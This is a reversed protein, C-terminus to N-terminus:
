LQFAFVRHREHLVCDSKFCYIELSLELHESVFLNVYNNAGRNRHKFLLCTDFYERKPSPVVMLTLKNSFLKGRLNKMVAPEEPTFESCYIGSVVSVLKIYADRLRSLLVGKDCNAGLSHFNAEVYSLLRNKVVSNLCDELRVLSEEGSLEKCKRVLKEAIKSHTRVLNEYRADFLLSSEPLTELNLTAFPSSDSQSFFPKIVMGNQLDFNDPYCDAHVLGATKKHLPDIMLRKVIEVNKLQSMKAVVPLPRLVEAYPSDINNGKNPKGSLPLRCQNRYIHEDLLKNQKTLRSTINAVCPDENVLVEILPLYCRFAEINEFFVNPPLEVLVRLSKTLMKKNLSRIKNKVPETLRTKGDSWFEDLDIKYSNQLAMEERLRTEIKPPLGPMGTGGEISNFADVIRKTEQFKECSDGEYMNSYYLYVFVQDAYPDTDILELLQSYNVKVEERRSLLRCLVLVTVVARHFASALRVTEIYRINNYGDSLDLDIDFMLNSLSLMKSFKLHFTAGTERAYVSWVDDSSCTKLGGSSLNTTHLVIDRAEMYLLSAVDEPRILGCSHNAFAYGQEKASTLMKDSLMIGTQKNEHLLREELTQMVSTKTWVYRNMQCETFVKGGSAGASEKMILPKYSMYEQGTAKNTVQKGKDYRVLASYTDEIPKPEDVKGCYDNEWEEMCDIFGSVKSDTAARTKAKARQSPNKEVKDYVENALNVLLPDYRLSKAHLIGGPTRDTIIGMTKFHSLINFSETVENVRLGIEKTVAKYIDEGSQYVPAWEFDPSILKSIEGRGIQVLEGFRQYFPILDNKVVNGAYLMKTILPNLGYGVWRMDSIRKRFEDQKYVTLRWAWYTCWKVFCVFLWFDCHAEESFNQQSIVERSFGQLGLDSTDTHKPFCNGPSASLAYVYNRYDRLSLKMDSISKTDGLNVNKSFAFFRLLIIGDQTPMVRLTEMLKEPREKTRDHLRDTKKIFQNFLLTYKVSEDFTSSIKEQLSPSMFLKGTTKAHMEVTAYRDIYPTFSDYKIYGQEGFLLRTPLDRTIFLPIVSRTRGTFKDIYSTNALVCFLVNFKGEELDQYNERNYIRDHDIISLISWWFCGNCSNKIINAYRARKEDRKCQHTDYILKFTDVDPFMTVLLRDGTHSESNGVVLATLQCDEHFRNFQRFQLFEPLDKEM